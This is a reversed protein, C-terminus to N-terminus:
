GERGWGLDVCGLFPGPLRVKTVGHMEETERMGLGLPSCPDRGPGGSVQRHEQVM